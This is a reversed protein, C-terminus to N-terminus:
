FAMYNLAMNNSENLEPPQVRKRPKQVNKLSSKSTNMNSSSSRESSSRESSSSRDSSSRTSISMAATVSPTPSMAKKKRRQLELLAAPKNKLLEDLREKMANERFRRFNELAAGSTNYAAVKRALNRHTTTHDFAIGRLKANEKLSAFPQAMYERLGQSGIFNDDDDPHRKAHLRRSWQFLNRGNATKFAAQAKKSKKSPKKPKTTPPNEAPRKRSVPATTPLNKATSQYPIGLFAALEGLMFAKSKWNHYVRGESSTVKHTPHFRSGMIEKMTDRLEKTTM